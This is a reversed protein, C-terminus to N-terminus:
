VPLKCTSRFYTRVADIQPTIRQAGAALPRYYPLMRSTQWGVKQLDAVLLNIWGLVPTLEAKIRGSAAARLAPEAAQVKTYVTRLKAPTVRTSAFSTSHVIDAAVGRAVSCLSGGAPAAAARSPVASATVAAAGAVALGVSITRKPSM